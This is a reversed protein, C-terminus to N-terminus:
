IHILSLDYAKVFSTTFAENISSRLFVRGSFRSSTTLGTYDIENSNGTTGMGVPIDGWLGESFHIDNDVINYNGTFKTITSFGTHTAAISGMWSRRVTLLNNPKDIGAVLMLEDDVKILDGSFISTIGSVNM